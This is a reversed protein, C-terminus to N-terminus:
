KLMAEVAGYHPVAHTDGYAALSPRSGLLKRAAATVQAESVGEIMKGFEAPGGYKGGHLLQQGMDKVLEAPEDVQRALKGKLVAKAMSLEEQTVSSLSKLSDCMAKAMTGAQDPQCVGYVGFLGSDSYSTNFASCSEIYPNQRVVQASLRSSSGGGLTNASASASGLLTQLVALPALEAQGWPVSELGIALHCFPSSGETRLDGGTYQAKPADRKKLPIANYDAFSRMAWKSLEAHDVNVGVLVMREPAFHDLMFGRITEPTFYGMSRESALTAHGLTNNCYAAKHLMENVIADAGMAGRAKAVEAHAAKVEWPLLRPFLVNGILLPVVLPMFERQVEVQYVTDEAGAACSTTHHSGLQELTKVTRLNSLHATSKYAMLSVMHAVGFNAASEFRSGANVFLGIHANMGGKDFSAVKLGNELKSFQAESKKLVPAPPDLLISRDMGTGAYPYSEADPDMEYFNFEPLEAMVSNVDEKVFKVEKFSVAPLSSSATSTATTATAQWRRTAASRLARVAFARNARIM